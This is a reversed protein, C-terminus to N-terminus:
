LMLRRCGTDWYKAAAARARQALELLGKADGTAFRHLSLKDALPTRLAVLWGKKSLEIGM